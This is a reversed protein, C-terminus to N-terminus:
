EYGTSEQGFFVPSAPLETQDFLRRQDFEDLSLKPKKNSKNKLKKMILEKCKSISFYKGEGLVAFALDILYFIEEHQELKAEGVEVHAEDEVEGEDRQFDQKYSFDFQPVAIYVSGGDVEGNNDGKDSLSANISFYQTPSQFWYVDVDLESEFDYDGIHEQCSYDTVFVNQNWSGVAGKFNYSLTRNSYLDNCRETNTLIRDIKQKIKRINHTLPRARLQKLLKIALNVDYSMVIDCRTTFHTKWYNPEANHERDHEGDLLFTNRCYKEWFHDLKLVDNWSSCVCSAKM